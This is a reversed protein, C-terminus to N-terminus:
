FPIDEDYVGAYDDASPAQTPAAGQAAQANSQAAEANRSSMIDVEDAIVEVSNRKYGDKEYTSQRLRGSVAVKMGKSLINDLATARNGFVVCKIWNPRDTWGGNNDPIRENVAVSFTLVFKGSSTQRLEPENGLNGTIAVKNISM